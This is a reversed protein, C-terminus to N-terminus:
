ARLDDAATGPQPGALDIVTRGWGRRDFSLVRYRAATFAPVQNEWSKSSGTAAHLLVVPTGSGGTDIYLIRAGPVEAYAEHLVVQAALPSALSVSLLIFAATRVPM